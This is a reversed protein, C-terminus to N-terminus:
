MVPVVVSGVAVCCVEVCGVTVSVGVLGDGVALPVVDTVELEAAIVGGEARLVVQLVEVAVSYTGLVLHLRLLVAVELRGRIVWPGVAAGETGPGEPCKEAGEAGLEVLIIRGILAAATGPYLAAPAITTTAAKM